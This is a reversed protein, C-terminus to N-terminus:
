NIKNLLLELAKTDYYDDQSMLYDYMLPTKNKCQELYNKAKEKNGIHQEMKSLLYLNFGLSSPAIDKADILIEMANIYKDRNRHDKLFKHMLFAGTKWYLVEGNKEILEPFLYSIGARNFVSFIYQQSEPEGQEFKQRDKEFRSKLEDVDSKIVEIRKISKPNFIDWVVYYGAFVSVLAVAVTILLHPFLSSTASFERPLATTGIARAVIKPSSIQNKSLTTVTISFVERPNLLPLVSRIYANTKDLDTLLSVDSFTATEIVDSDFDINLNIKEIAKNGSNRLKIVFYKGIGSERPFNDSETMEYTLAARDRKIQWLIYGVLLALIAPIIYNM